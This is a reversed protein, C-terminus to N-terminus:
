SFFDKALWSALWFSPHSPCTTSFVGIRQLNSNSDQHPRFTCHAPRPLLLLLLIRISDIM